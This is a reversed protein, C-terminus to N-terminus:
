VNEPDVPQAFGAKGLETEVERSRRRALARYEAGEPWTVTGYKREVRCGRIRKALYTGTGFVFRSIGNAIGWRIPSYFFLNFYTFNPDGQPVGVARVYLTEGDRLCVVIGTPRGDLEGRFTVVNDDITRRLLDYGRMLVDVGSRTGHRAQLGAQLEATVVDLAGTGHNVSVRSGSADFRRIEARIASRRDRQLTALYGDFDSWNVDLVCVGATTLPVPDTELVGAAITAQEAGDLFPISLTRVKESRAIDQLAEVVSPLVVSQPGSAVVPFHAGDLVGVIAPYLEAVVARDGLLLEPRRLAFAPSEDFFHYPALAVFEGAAGSVCLYRLSGHSAQECYRFWAESELLRRQGELAQKAPLPLDRVSAHVSYPM